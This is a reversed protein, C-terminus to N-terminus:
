HQQQQQKDFTASILSVVDNIYQLRKPHNKLAEAVSKEYESCIGLGYYGNARFMWSNLNREDLKNIVYDCDIIARKFNGM